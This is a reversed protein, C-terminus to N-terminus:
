LKLSETNSWTRFGEKAAAVARDVDAPSGSQIHALTEGTAPNYQAITEGTAGSVWEGGIFHGYKEKFVSVGKFNAQVNM